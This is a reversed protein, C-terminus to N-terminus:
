DFPSVISFGSLMMRSEEGVTFRMQVQSSMQLTGAKLFESSQLSHGTLIYSRLLQSIKLMNAAGGGSSQWREIPGRLIQDFLANDPAFVTHPGVQTLATDLGSQSSVLADVFNSYRIRDAELIQWVNRSQPPLLVSDIVHVVGNTGFMDTEIVKAQNIFTATPVGDASMDMTVQITDIPAGCYTTKKAEDVSAKLQNYADNASKGYPAKHCLKDFTRVCTCFAVKDSFSQCEQRNLLFQLADFNCQGLYNSEIVNSQAMTSILTRDKLSSAEFQVPVIHYRLINTLVDFNASAAVTLADIIDKVEGWASVSPAFVTFTRNPHSLLTDMGVLQLLDIFTSYASARENYALVQYVNCLAPPLLIRDLTHAIGNSVVQDQCLVTAQNVSYLWKREASLPSVSMQVSNNFGTGEAWEQDAVISRYSMTNVFDSM